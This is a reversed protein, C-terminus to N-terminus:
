HSRGRVAQTLMARVSSPAYPKAVFASNEVRERHFNEQAGGSTYIVALGPCVERGHRAVVYGGGKDGLDIDVFAAAIPAGRDLVELAAHTDAALLVEFDADELAECVIERIMADDEVVLVAPRSEM